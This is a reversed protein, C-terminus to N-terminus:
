STKARKIAFNLRPTSAESFAFKNFCSFLVIFAVYWNLRLHVMQQISGLALVLFILLLECNTFTTSQNNLIGKMYTDDPNCTM